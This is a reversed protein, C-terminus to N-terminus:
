SQVEMRGTGACQTCKETLPASAFADFEASAEDLSQDDVWARYSDDHAQNRWVNKVPAGDFRKVTPHQDTTTTIM